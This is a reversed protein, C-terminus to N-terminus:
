GRYAHVGGRDAPEQEVFQLSGALKVAAQEVGLEEDIESLSVASGFSDLEYIQFGHQLLLVVMALLEIEFSVSVEVSGGTGRDALVKIFRQLRRDCVAQFSVTIM